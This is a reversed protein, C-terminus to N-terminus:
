LFFRKLFLNERKKQPCFCLFLTFFNIQFNRADFFFTSIPKKGRGAYKSTRYTRGRGSRGTLHM